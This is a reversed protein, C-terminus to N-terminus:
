SDSKKFSSEFELLDYLGMASDYVVIVFYMLAFVFVSNRLCAFITCWLDDNKMLIQSVIIVVIVLMILISEIIISRKMARIVPSLDAKNDIVSKYNIFRLVLISSLTFYVALLSVLLQVISSQLSAVYDVQGYTSLLGLSLAVVAYIVYKLVKKM